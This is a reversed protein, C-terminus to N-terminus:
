KKTVKEIFVNYDIESADTAQVEAGIGVLAQRLQAKSSAFSMKSSIPSTDPAWLVFVLKNRKAGEAEFEFDVVGYRCAEKPLKQVFDKFTESSAGSSEVVIQTKDDSIKYVIYRLSHGLKMEQYKSICDDHVKVGSSM